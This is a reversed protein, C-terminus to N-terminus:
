KEHFIVAAGHDLFIEFVADQFVEVLNQRGSLVITQGKKAQIQQQQAIETV